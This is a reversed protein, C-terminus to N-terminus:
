SHCSHCSLPPYGEKKSRAQGKPVEVGEQQYFKKMEKNKKKNLNEFRDKMKKAWFSHGAGVSSKLCPYKKILQISMHERESKTVSDTFARVSTCLQRNLANKHEVSLDGKELAAQVAPEWKSPIEFKELWYTDAKSTIPVQRMEKFLPMRKKSAYSVQPTSSSSSSKVPSSTLKRKRPSTRRVVVPVSPSASRSRPTKELHSPRPTASQPSDSNTLDFVSPSSTTVSPSTAQKQSAVKAGDPTFEQM